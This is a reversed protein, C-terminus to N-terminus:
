VRDYRMDENSIRETKESITEIGTEIDWWPGCSRCEIGGKGREIEFIEDKM